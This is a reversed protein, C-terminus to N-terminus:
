PQSSPRGLNLHRGLNLYLAFYLLKERSRAFRNTM